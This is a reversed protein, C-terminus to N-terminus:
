RADDDYKPPKKLLIDWTMQASSDLGLIPVTIELDFHEQVYTKEPLHDM